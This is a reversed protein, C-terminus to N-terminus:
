TNVGTNRLSLTISMRTPNLIAKHINTCKLTVNNPIPHTSPACLRNFEPITLKIDDGEFLLRDAESLSVRIMPYSIVCKLWRFWRFRDITYSQYLFGDYYVATHADHTIGRHKEDCWVFQLYTVMKHGASEGDSDLTAKGVSLGLINLSDVCIGTFLQFIGKATINCAMNIETNFLLNFDANPPYDVLDSLYINLGHTFVYFLAYTFFGVLCTVELFMQTTIPTDNSSIANLKELSM